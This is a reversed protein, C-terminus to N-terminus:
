CNGVNAIKVNIAQMGKPSKEPDFTVKQGKILKRYDFNDTVIKSFHVFYGDGKDDDIFGYGKDDNFFRVTGNM